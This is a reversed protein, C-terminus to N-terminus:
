HMTSFRHYIVGLLEMTDYYRLELMLRLGLGVLRVLQVLGLQYLLINAWQWMQM